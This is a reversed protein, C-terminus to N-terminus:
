HVQKHISRCFFESILTVKIFEYLKKNPEMEM